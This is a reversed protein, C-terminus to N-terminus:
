ICHEEPSIKVDNYTFSSWIKGLFKMVYVESSPENLLIDPIVDLAAAKDIVEMERRLEHLQRSSIVRLQLTLFQKSFELFYEKINLRPPEPMNSMLDLSLPASGFNGPAPADWLNIYV